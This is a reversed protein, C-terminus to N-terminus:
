SALPSSQKDVAEISGLLRATLEHQGFEEAFHLWIWCSNPGYGCMTDSEEWAQETCNSPGCITAKQRPCNRWFLYSVAYWIRTAWNTAAILLTEDLFAHAATFDGQRTAIHGLDILTDAIQRKGENRRQSQWDRRRHLSRAEELDGEASAINGLIMLPWPFSFGGATRCESM